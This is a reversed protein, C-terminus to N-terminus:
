IEDASLSIEDALSSYKCQASDRHVKEVLIHVFIQPVHSEGVVPLPEEFWENWGNTTSCGYTSQSVLCNGRLFTTINSSRKSL